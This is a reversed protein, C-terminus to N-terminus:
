KAELFTHIIYFVIFFAIHVLQKNLDINTKITSTFKTNNQNNITLYVAM